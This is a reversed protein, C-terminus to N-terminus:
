NKGDSNIISGILKKPDEDSLTAGDLSISEVENMDFNSSIIVAARRIILSGTISKTGRMIAFRSRFSSTSGSRFQLAVDAIYVRDDLYHQDIVADLHVLFSDRL